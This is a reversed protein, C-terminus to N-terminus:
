PTAGADDPAEDETPAPPAFIQEWAAEIEQRLADDRRFARRVLFQLQYNWLARLSAEDSADWLYAHGVSAAPNRVAQSNIRKFWGVIRARLADEV